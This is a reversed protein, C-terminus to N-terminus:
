RNADVPITPDVSTQWDIGIGYEWREGPDFEIPASFAANQCTTIERSVAPWPLCL